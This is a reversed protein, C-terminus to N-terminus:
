KLRKGKACPRLRGDPLIYFIEMRGGGSQHEKRYKEMESRSKFTERKKSMGNDTVVMFRAGSAYADITKIM